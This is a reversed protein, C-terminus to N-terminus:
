MSILDDDAFVFGIGFYQESSYKDDQLVFLPMKNATPTETVKLWTFFTLDNSSYITDALYGFTEHSKSFRMPDVSSTIEVSKENFCFPGDVINTGLIKPETVINFTKLM